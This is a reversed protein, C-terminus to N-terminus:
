LQRSAEVPISHNYSMMLAHKCEVVIHKLM